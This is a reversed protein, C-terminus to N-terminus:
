YVPFEYDTFFILMASFTLHFLATNWKLDKGWAEMTATAGENLMRDMAEDSLILEKMLEEEKWRKLLALLPFSGFINCCALRKERILDLTNQRLRKNGGIGFFLPFVNSHLSSHTTTESDIFLAREQDYFANIFAKELEKVPM